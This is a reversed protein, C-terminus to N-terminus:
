LYVYLTVSISSVAFNLSLVSRHYIAPPHSSMLVERPVFHDLRVSRCVLPIVLPLFHVVCVFCIFAGSHHHILFGINQYHSMNAFKNGTVSHSYFSSLFLFVCPGHFSNTLNQSKKKMTENRKKKKERERFSDNIRKVLNYITM